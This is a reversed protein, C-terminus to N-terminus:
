NDLYTSEEIDYVGRGPVPGTRSQVAPKSGVSRNGREAISYTAYRSFNRTDIGVMLLKYVGWGEVRARFEPETPKRLLGVLSCNRLVLM